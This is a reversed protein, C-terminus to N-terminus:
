GLISCVQKALSCAATVLLDCRIRFAPRQQRYVARLIANFPISSQYLVESGGRPLYIVIEPNAPYTWVQYRGSGFTPSGELREKLRIIEDWGACCGADASQRASIVHGM